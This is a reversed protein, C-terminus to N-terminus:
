RNKELPFYKKGRNEIKMEALIRTETVFNAFILIIHLLDLSSVFHQNIPGYWITEHCWSCFAQGSVNVKQICDSVCMESERIKGSVFWNRSEREAMELVEMQKERIRRNGVCTSERRECTRCLLILNVVLHHAARRTLDKLAATMLKCTRPVNNIRM